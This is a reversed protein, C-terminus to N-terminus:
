NLSAATVYTLKLSLSKSSKTEQLTLRVFTQNNMQTLITIIYPRGSSGFQSFFTQTKFPALNCSIANGSHWYHILKVNKGM